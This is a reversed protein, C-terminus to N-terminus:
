TIAEQLHDLQMENNTGQQKGTNVVLVQHDEPCGAAQDTGEPQEIKARILRMFGSLSSALHPQSLLPMKYQKSQVDVALSSLTPMHPQLTKYVYLPKHIALCNRTISAFESYSNAACDYLSIETSKLM